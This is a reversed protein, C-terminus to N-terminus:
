TSTSVEGKVGIYLSVIGFTLPLAEVKSFGKMKELFADGSPFSEITENLYTYADYHSSLWRGVKPLIHRLYFLYPWRILSFRPMSFELILAVGGPRLVRHIEDLCKPLDTVNRIGFSISVIDASEDDLPISLANGLSLSVREDRMKKKALKLMEESLDFGYVKAIKRSKLLALIQDGTGTALDVAVIGEKQPLHRLLARRWYRDIGFSLLRNIRDYSPAIHDFLTIIQHRSRM